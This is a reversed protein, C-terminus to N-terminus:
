FLILLLRHYQLNTVLQCKGLYNIDDCSQENKVKADIVDEKKILQDYDDQDAWSKFESWNDDEAKVEAEMKIEAAEKGDLEDVEM